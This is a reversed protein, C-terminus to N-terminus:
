TAIWGKRARVIDAEPYGEMGTRSAYNAQSFDNQIARLLMEYLGSGRHVPTYRLHMM